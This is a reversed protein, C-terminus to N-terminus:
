NNLTKLFINYKEKKAESKRKIKTPNKRLYKILKNKTAHKKDYEGNIYDTISIHVNYFFYSKISKYNDNKKNIKIFEYYENLM